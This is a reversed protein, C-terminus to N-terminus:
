ASEKNTLEEHMRENDTELNCIKDLLSEIFNDLREVIDACDDAVGGFSRCQSVINDEHPTTNNM